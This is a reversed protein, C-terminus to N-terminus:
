NSENGRTCESGHLEIAFFYINFCFATVLIMILDYHGVESVMKIADNHSVWLLLPHLLILVSDNRLGYYFLTQVASM